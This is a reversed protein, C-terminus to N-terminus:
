TDPGSELENLSLKYSLISLENTLDVNRVSVSPPLDLKVGTFNLLARVGSAVLVRATAVAAGSPVAVIGMTCGLSMPLLGIDEIPLGALLQGHKAPNADFVRTIHFNWEPFGQYNLLAAGLNGAGVLVVRHVASLQLISCIRELLQSVPYGMGQVGFEGFFSLDKRFQSAKM